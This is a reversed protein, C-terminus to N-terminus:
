RFLVQTIILCLATFLLSSKFTYLTNIKKLFYIHQAYNNSFFFFNDEILVRVEVTTLNETRWGQNVKIKLYFTNPHIM